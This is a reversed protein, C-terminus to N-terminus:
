TIRPPRLLVLDGHPSEEQLLLALREGFLHLLEFLLIVLEAPPQGLVLGGALLRGWCLPGDEVM